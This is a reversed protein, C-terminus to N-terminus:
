PKEKTMPELFGMNIHAEEKLNAQLAVLTDLDAQYPKGRFENQRSMFEEAAKQYLANKHNKNQTAQIFALNDSMALANTEEQCAAILDRTVQLMTKLAQASNEPLVTVQTQEQSTM